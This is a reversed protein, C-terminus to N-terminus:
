KWKKKQHSKQHNKQSSKQHNKQRERIASRELQRKELNQIEGRLKKYSEYRRQTLRGDELANRVACGPESSHSCNRFQCHQILEEMDPFSRALDAEDSWLKLERLGPVDVIFSGWPLPYLRSETTTHRGRGDERIEGERAPGSGGGGFSFLANVLSSKGVGSKGLMAVTQGATIYSVLENIGEMSRASLMFVPVGVSLNEAETRVAACLDKSACDIKNVVIVPQAGSSWAATLSREIMNGLFNREGEMAFVLLLCDVNAAIVQPETREGAAWRRIEGRRLFLDEIIGEQGGPLLSLLVWDGVVPFASNEQWENRRAGRVRASLTQVNEPRRGERGGESAFRTSPLVCTYEYHLQHIVRAPLLNDGARSRWEEEIRPPLNWHDSNM